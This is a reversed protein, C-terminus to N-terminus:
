VLFLRLALFFIGQLIFIRPAIKNNTSISFLEFGAAVIASIVLWMVYNQLPIQNFSWSWMDTRMAVPEMIFDFLSMLMGVVLPLYKRLPQIKRVLEVAGYSLMLWNFGIILPTDFLKGPLSSGYIYEGFLAGTKVGIAEITFTFAAVGGFFLLHKRDFKTHFLMLMFLNILLSLPILREFLGRTAPVLFGAIGVAYFIVLFKTGEKATLQKFYHTIRNM